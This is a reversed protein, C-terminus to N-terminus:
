PTPYDGAYVETRYDGLVHFTVAIPTTQDYGPSVPFGGIPGFDAYLQIPDGSSSLTMPLDKWVTGDWYQVSVDSAQLPDGSKKEITFTVLVNKYVGDSQLRVGLDYTKGIIVTDTLDPYGGVNAVKSITVGEDPNVVKTTVVLFFSCSPRDSCM